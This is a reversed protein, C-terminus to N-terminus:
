LDKKNFLYNAVGFSACLIVISCIVVVISIMKMDPLSDSVPIIVYQLLTSISYPIAIIAVSSIVRMKMAGWILYVPIFLSLYLLTAVLSIIIINKSVYPYFSSGLISVGKMILAACIYLVLVSVYKGLVVYKRAYPTTTLFQLGKGKEEEDIGCTFFLHIIFIFTIFFIIDNSITASQAKLVTPLLISFAFLMPLFKKALLIDKIVLNSLSKVM